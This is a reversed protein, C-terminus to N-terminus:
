FPTNEDRIADISDAVEEALEAESVPVGSDTGITATLTYRSVIGDDGRVFIAIEFVGEGKYKWRRLPTGRYYYKVAEDEYEAHTVRSEEHDTVDGTVVAAHRSVTYDRITDLDSDDSM